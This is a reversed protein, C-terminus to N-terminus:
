LRRRDCATSSTRSSPPWTSPTRSSCGSSRSATSCPSSSPANERCPGLLADLFATHEALARAVREADHEHRLELLELLLHEKSAFHHLLGADSLGVRTAITSLSARHFGREAFVEDAAALIAERRERGKAYSGRRTAAM